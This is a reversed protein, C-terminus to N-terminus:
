KAKVPKPLKNCLLCSLLIIMYICYTTFRTVRDIMAFSISKVFINSNVINNYFIDIAYFLDYIFTNYAVIFMISVLLFIIGLKFSDYINSNIFEQNYKKLKLGLIATIVLSIVELIITFLMVMSESLVGNFQFINLISNSFLLLINLLFGIIFCNKILEGFSTIRQVKLNTISM